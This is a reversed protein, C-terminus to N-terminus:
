VLVRPRVEIGDRKGKRAHVGCIPQWEGSWDEDFWEWTALYRCQEMHNDEGRSLTCLGLREVAARRRLGERWGRQYYMDSHSGTRGHIADQYGDRRQSTRWESESMPYPDVPWKM